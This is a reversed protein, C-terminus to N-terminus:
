RLDSSGLRGPYVRFELFLQVGLTLLLNQDQSSPKGLKSLLVLDTSEPPM